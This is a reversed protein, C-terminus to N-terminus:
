YVSEMFVTNSKRIHTKRVIEADTHDSDSRWLNSHRNRTSSYTGHNKGKRKVQKRKNTETVKNSLRFAM